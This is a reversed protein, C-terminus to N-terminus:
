TRAEAVSLSREAPWLLRLLVALVWLIAATIVTLVLWFKWYANFTQQWGADVVHSLNVNMDRPTFFRSFLQVVFYWLLAYLWSVKDMGVRRLAFGAVVIGGVHALTSTLFVGWALVVYVFWVILGPVMWLAAIRILVPRDTFLGVALVLNGINCMWLMHGLENIRWYHVTQALFFVLPLFGLLRYIRSDDQMPPLTM